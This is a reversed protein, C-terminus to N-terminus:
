YNGKLLFKFVEVRWPTNELNNDQIQDSYKRERVSSTQTPIVRKESVEMMTVIIFVQDHNHFLSHDHKYFVGVMVTPRFCSVFLQRERDMRRGGGGQVAETVKYYSVDEKAGTVVGGASTKKPPRKNFRSVDEEEEERHHWDYKIGSTNRINKHLSVCKNNKHGVFLM